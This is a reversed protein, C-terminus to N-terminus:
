RTAFNIFELDIESKQVSQVLGDPVLFGADRLPDILLEMKLM